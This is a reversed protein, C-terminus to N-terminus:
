QRLQQDYKRGLNHMYELCDGFRFNIIPDCILVLILEEEGTCLLIKQELHNFISICTYIAYEKPYLSEILLFNIIQMFDLTNLFYQKLWQSSVFAPSISMSKLKALIM